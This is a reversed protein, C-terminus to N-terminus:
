HEKPTEGRSAAKSNSNKAAQVVARAANELERRAGLEGHTWVALDLVDLAKSLRAVSLQLSTAQTLRQAREFAALRTAARDIIEALAPVKLASPNVVLATIAQLDSAVEPNQEALREIKRVAHLVTAHNRGGFQRGIIPLSAKTMRRSLTMAIQRPLSTGRTRDDSEMHIIPVAYYQATARKIDTIQATM